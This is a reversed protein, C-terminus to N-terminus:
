KKLMEIFAYAADVCENYLKDIQAKNKKYYNRAEKLYKNKEEKTLDGSQQIYWYLYSFQEVVYSKNRIYPYKKMFEKLAKLQKEGSTKEVVKEFRCLDATETDPYNKVIEDYERNNYRYTDSLEDRAFDNKNKHIFKTYRELKSKYDKLFEKDYNKSVTEPVEWVAGLKMKNSALEYLYEAKRENNNEKAIIVELAEIKKLYDEKIGMSGRDKYIQELRSLPTDKKQGCGIFGTLVIIILILNLYTKGM